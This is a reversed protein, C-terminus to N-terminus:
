TTYHVNCKIQSHMFFRACGGTKELKCRTHGKATILVEFITGLNISSCFSKAKIKPLKYGM